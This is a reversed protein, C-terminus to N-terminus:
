ERLFIDNSAVWSLNAQTKVGAGDRTVYLEETVTIAGPPQVTFPDPLDTDPAPDLTTAQGSNWDYSASSEEQLLLTIAGIGTTSFKKIRFVKSNWGLATNTFTVPGAAAGTM